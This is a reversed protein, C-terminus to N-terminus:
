KVEANPIKKILEATFTRWHQVESRLADREAELKAITIRADIIREVIEMDKKNM